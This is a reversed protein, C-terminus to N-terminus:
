SFCVLYWASTLLNGAFMLCYPSWMRLYLSVGVAELSDGGLRNASM